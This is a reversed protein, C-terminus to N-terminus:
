PVGGDSGGDPSDAVMPGAPSCFVQENALVTCSWGPEEPVAPRIIIETGVGFGAGALFAALTAPSMPKKADPM